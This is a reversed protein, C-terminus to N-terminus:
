DNEFSCFLNTKRTKRNRLINQWYFQIGTQNRTAILNLPQSYIRQNQCPPRNTGITEITQCSSVNFYYQFSKKTRIKSLIPKINLIYTCNFRLDNLQYFNDTTIADRRYCCTPVDSYCQTEM